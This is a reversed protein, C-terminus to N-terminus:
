GLAVSHLVNKRQSSKGESEYACAKEEEVPKGLLLYPINNEITVHRHLKVVLIMRVHRFTFPAWLKGRELTARLSEVTCTKSQDSDACKQLHERDEAFGLEDSRTRRRAVYGWRENRLNFLGISPRHVRIKEILSTLEAHLVLKLQHVRQPVVDRFAAGNRWWRGSLHRAKLWSKGVM